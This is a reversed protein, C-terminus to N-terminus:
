AAVSDKSVPAPQGGDSVQGARRIKRLSLHFGSGPRFRSTSLGAVVPRLAYTLSGVLVGLALVQEVQLGLVFPPDLRVAGLALRATAYTGAFVVLRTGAPLRSPLHSAVLWLALAVLGDYLQAPHRPVGFDPTSALRNTYQTAWPLASPMGQGHGDVFAGLRGIAIGLAVGPAVADFIRRRRRWNGGRGLRAAAILTGGVLGGWLSLGDLNLQWLENGHTLYYDWWGLVYVLRATLLGAPVGWALADLAMARPLAQRQIERLSLWVALGLGLLALLGFWRVALPGVNLLIPDLAIVV